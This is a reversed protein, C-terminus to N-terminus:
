YGRNRGGSGSSGSSTRGRLVSSMLGQLSASRRDAIEKLEKLTKKRAKNGKYQKIGAGIFELPNAATSVRGGENRMGPLVTDRLANAQALQENLLEKQDGLGALGMSAALMRDEREGQDRFIQAYPDETGSAEAAARPAEAVTPATRAVSSVSDPEVTYPTQGMAEMRDANPDANGRGGSPKGLSGVYTVDLPEPMPKDAYVTDSTTGRQAAARGAQYKRKVANNRFWDALYPYLPQTGDFKEM